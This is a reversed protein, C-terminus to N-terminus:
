GVAQRYVELTAWTVGDWGFRERARERAAAGLRRCLESDALLTEVARRLAPADRPPVFVGTVGDEVLELLAGGAAAVVPRGYAM